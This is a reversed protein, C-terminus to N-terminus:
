SEYISENYFDVKAGLNPKSAFLKYWCLQFNYLRKLSVLQKLLIIKLSM